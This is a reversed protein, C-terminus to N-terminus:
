TSPLGWFFIKYDRALEAYGRRQDDSIEPVLKTVEAYLSVIRNHLSESFFAPCITLTRNPGGVIAGQRCIEATGEVCQMTFDGDFEHRLQRYRDFIGALVYRDNIPGLRAVIHPFMFTDWRNYTQSLGFMAYTNWREAWALAEPHRSFTAVVLLVPEPLRSEAM